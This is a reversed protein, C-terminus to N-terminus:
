KCTSMDSCCDCLDTSWNGIGQSTTVTVVQTPQQQVPMGPPYAPQPHMGPAYPQQAPYQQQYAMGPLPFMGSTCSLCFLIYMWQESTPKSSSSNLLHGSGHSAFWMRTDTHLKCSDSMRPADEDSPCRSSVFWSFRNSIAGASIEPGIFVVLFVNYLM